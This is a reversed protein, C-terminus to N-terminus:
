RSARHHGCLQCVSDVELNSFECEPCMWRLDAADPTLRSEHVEMDYVRWDGDLEDVRADADEEHLWLSDVERPHYNSYCVVYILM